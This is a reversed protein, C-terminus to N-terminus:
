ERICADGESSTIRLRREHELLSIAKLYAIEM